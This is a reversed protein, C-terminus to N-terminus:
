ETASSSSYYRKKNWPTLRGKPHYICSELRMWGGDPESTGHTHPKAHWPCHPVHVDREAESVQWVVRVDDDDGAFFPRTAPAPERLPECDERRKKFDTGTTALVIAISPDDELCKLVAFRESDDLVPVWEHVHVGKRRPCSEVRQPRPMNWSVYHSM